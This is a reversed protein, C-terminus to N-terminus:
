LRKYVLMRGKEWPSRAVAQEFDLVWATKAGDLTAELLKEHTTRLNASVSLDVFVRTINLRDLHGLLDKPTNFVAHYGRGMWDSSSLEKSGRYVRLLFGSRRPCDFAAAAIVAGEGRPDSTVLWNQRSAGSTSIGSRTVASHFGSVEKRLLIGPPLLLLNCVLISVAKAMSALNGQWPIWHLAAAAALLMAPALTLM